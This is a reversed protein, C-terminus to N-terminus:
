DGQNGQDDDGQETFYTVLTADDGERRKLGLTLLLHSLLYVLKNRDHVAQIVRRTKPDVLTPQQLLWANLSDLILKTHVAEEVVALAATSLNEVGGLDALLERRWREVARGVASRRDLGTSGETVVIERLTRRRPM